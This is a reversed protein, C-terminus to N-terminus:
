RGGAADVADLFDKKLPLPLAGAFRLQSLYNAITRENRKTARAIAHADPNKGRKIARDALTKIRDRLPAARTM